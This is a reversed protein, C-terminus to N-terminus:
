RAVAFPHREWRREQEAESGNWGARHQRRQSDKLRDESRLSGGRVRKRLAIPVEYGGDYWLMLLLGNQVLIRFREEGAPAGSHKRVPIRVLDQMSDHMPVGVWGQTQRNVLLYSQSSSPVLWLSYSGAPVTADGIQLDKDITLRTPSNAGLRWVTDFPVLRGWIVRGRKAPRGYDISVHTDGVVTVVSDRTSPIGMGQGVAEKAAWARAIADIDADRIPTMQLRVTTSSADGHLLRGERDLKYGRHFGQAFMLEASDGAIIRVDFTNPADQSLAFSYFGFQTAKTRMVAQVALEQWYPSTGGVAPLTVGPAANRKVVVTGNQTVERVVSDGVFTMKMGVQAVGHPTPAVPTGDPNFIGEEYSAVLGDPNFRLTYRLVTTTPTHRAVAGDVTNGHRTLREIAITDIGLRVVFGRTQAELAMPLVVLAAVLSHRVSLTM